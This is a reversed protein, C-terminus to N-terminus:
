NPIAALQGDEFGLTEGDAGVEFAFCAEVLDADASVIELTGGAAERTTLSSGSEPYWTAFGGDAGEVVTVSIPFNGADVAAQLTEGEGTTQAVISLWDAGTTNIQLSEGAWTFTAGDAAWAEGDVTAEAADADLDVTCSGIKGGGGGACALLVILM